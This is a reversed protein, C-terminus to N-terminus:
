DSETNLQIKKRLIIFPILIVLIIIPLLVSFYDYGYHTSPLTLLYSLISAFIFINTSILYPSKRDELLIVLTSLSILLYLQDYGWLYPTTVLVVPTIVSVFEKFSLSNKNKLIFLFVAATLVFSLIGGVLLIAKGNSVLRGFGWVNPGYAFTEGLKQNGSQLFKVVWQFDQLIGLFLLVIGGAILGGVAKWKKQVVYWIFILLLYPGGITPKLIILSVVMGSLFWKDKEWFFISLILAFLLWPGIQGFRLTAYTPRFMLAGIVLFLFTSFNRQGKSQFYLLYVSFLIIFQSVITWLLFANTFPLLGLPALFLRLPLPYIFRPNFIWTSGFFRNWYQWQEPDYADFGMVLSKGALWFTMFDTNALNDWTNSFMKAVLYAPITLLLLAFISIAIKTKASGGKNLLSAM